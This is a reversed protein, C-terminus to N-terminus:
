RSAQRLPPEDIGYVPTALRASHGALGAAERKANHPLTSSPRPTAQVVRKGEGSVLGSTPIEPMRSESQNRPLSM